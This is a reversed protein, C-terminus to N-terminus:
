EIRSRRDRRRGKTRPAIPSPPPPPKPEDDPTSEDDDKDDDKDSDEESDDGESDEKKDGESKKERREELKELYEKLEEEYDELSQRYKLADKFQKRVSRYTKLRSVVSAGSDLNICLAADNSEVEGIAGDDRPVLRMVAGVGTIGASGGTGVYVTTLGNRLADQFSDNAYPDFADKALATPDASSSGDLRGLASWSDIFGPTVTKGVLDITKSLFPVDVKSGIQDIRGGKVIMSGEEIPEGAMTVLRAGQFVAAREFLQAQAVDYSLITALVCLLLRSQSRASARRWRILTKEAALLGNGVM